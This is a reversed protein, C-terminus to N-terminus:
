YVKELESYSIRPNNLSVKELAYTIDCGIALHNQIIFQFLFHSHGIQESSSFLVM